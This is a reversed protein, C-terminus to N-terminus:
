PTILRSISAKVDEISSIDSIKISTEQRIQPKINMSSRSCQKRYPHSLWNWSGMVALKTDCVLIRANTGRSEIHIGEGLHSFRSGSYQSFLDRLNNEIVADNYDNEESGKNGYVVTVKVGRELASVVDNVFRKSESGRIWPTVVILEEEVQEIAERFIQLHECDYILVNGPEAKPIEAESKYELVVGHERIHEVLQRTLNGKELKYLNGVLIFLEKARSVAVNLLNPRKNIWYVNDQPRCVKTSLIIVRKESGQFKHITGVSKSDLQPFKNKLREKLVAAHVNFPSIVGIDELSYGQKVLHQIIEGVATVEEENVSNHINGEVDYAILHTDVLSNVSETKVELDYNTIANCYQIISPECRYHEKLFIGHGRDNNEGSAGAARHYTTASYEEEPSYRHYDIETLGRGLFATQRYNDRRQQSLTIIPEIQLPDGVIIAKRSRVLLPFTKHQDIMGAEDVITRDVCEGIWPLMNRVSPLTTTIVPFILSLYKIHEDLNEAMRDKDKRYGSLVSSYLELTQKGRDKNYLAQQIIFQSSLKFLEQHKDHFNQHFSAYFNELPTALSVELIQFEKFADDSQRKTNDRDNYKQELIQQVNKLEDAKYIRERVLRVQQILDARTSPPKIPFSTGSTQAIASQCASNVDRLIREETKGTLWRWLRVWWILRGESLLSEAKNFHKEITRYAQIPLQNYESLARAGRQFPTIAAIIEDLYKQLTQIKESLHQHRKEDLDRQHRLELYKSEEALIEVKIAKISQKLSNYLQEDFSNKQLFDIAQRLQEIAGSSSQINNKNGGKLYFLENKFFKDLKEIVNDVAKNNTSSVVTLNNINKGTEILSLARNVVQQAILHLILTTKGSGPPGQVATIPESQAHKLATSQSNTPAHTPFAGMYILEDKASNPVGFLYEYAPHGKSWNKSGLKIDKLDQRLNGTFRGGTFEFLYPQRQIPDRSRRPIIIREMWDQYSNFILGFTTELFRRLGDKTILQECQEDDLKLFTALNDGAEILTLSDLNWGQEQYEGKLISTVDLSFLPCLYSKREEVDLVQPFSLVWAAEQQFKQRQKVKKQLESFTTIDILIHDCVLKVGRQKVKDSNAEIRANSYDDLAIYDFWANLIKDVKSATNM